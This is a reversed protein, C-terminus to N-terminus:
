RVQYSNNLLLRKVPRGRLWQMLGQGNITRGAAEYPFDITVDEWITTSPHRLCRAWRRSVAAVRRRDDFPLLSFIHLLLEDPLDM